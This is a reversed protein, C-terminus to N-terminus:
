VGLAKRWARVNALWGTLLAEVSSVGRGALEEIRKRASLDEPFNALVERYTSVAAAVDGQSAYLEALTKSAMAKKAPAAGSLEAVAEVAAEPSSVASFEALLEAKIEALGHPLLGLADLVDSAESFRGLDALFKAEQVRFVEGQRDKLELLAEDPPLTEIWLSALTPSNKVISLQSIM